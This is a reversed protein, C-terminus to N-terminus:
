NSTRISTGCEPCRHTTARLDYGCYICLGKRSRESLIEWPKVVYHHFITAGLFLLGECAAFINGTLYKMPSFFQGYIALAFFFLSPIILLLTKM